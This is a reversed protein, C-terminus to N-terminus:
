ENYDVGNETYERDLIYKIMEEAPVNEDGVDDYQPDAFFVLTNDQITADDLEWIRNYIADEGKFGYVYGGGFKNPPSFYFPINHAILMALLKKFEETIM